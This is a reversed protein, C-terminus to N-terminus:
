GESPASGPQREFVLCDAELARVQACLAEAAARAAFGGVRVRFATRGALGAREITMRRGQLVGVLDLGFREVAQRAAQRNPLSALQVSYTSTSRSGTGHEAPKPFSAVRLDPRPAHSQITMQASHGASAANEAADIRAAQPTAALGPPSASRDDARALDQLIYQEIENLQPQDALLEDIPKNGILDTQGGTSSKRLSINAISAEDDESVKGVGRGAGEASRGDTLVPSRPADAETSPAPLQDVLKARDVDSVGVNDTFLVVPLLAAGFFIASPLIQFALRDRPFWGAGAASRRGRDAESPERLSAHARRFTKVTERLGGLPGRNVRFLATASQDIGTERLDESVPNSPKDRTGM